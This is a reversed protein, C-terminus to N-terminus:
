DDGRAFGLLIVAARRTLIATRFQQPINKQIETLQLDAASGPTLL